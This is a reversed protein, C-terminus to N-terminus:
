SLGIQPHRAEIRPLVVCLGVSELLYIPLTHSRRLILLSNFCSHFEGKVFACLCVTAQVNEM